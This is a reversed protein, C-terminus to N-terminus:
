SVVSHYDEARAYLSVYGKNPKFAPNSYYNLACVIASKAQPMHIRPDFRLRHGRKLYDMDALYGGDLWNVFHSHLIPDYDVRAFGCASFGLELAMARIKEKLSM